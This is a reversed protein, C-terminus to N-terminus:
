RLRGTYWATGDDHDPDQATWGVTRGALQVAAREPLDTLQHLRCGDRLDLLLGLRITNERTRVTDRSIIAIV